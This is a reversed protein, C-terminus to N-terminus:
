AHQQAVGAFAQWASEQEATIGIEAKLTELRAGVAEASWGGPGHGRMGYGMGPGAGQGAGICPGAGAGPGMGAGPQAALASAVALTLAAISVAAFRTTTKM